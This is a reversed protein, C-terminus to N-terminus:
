YQLIKILLKFSIYNVTVSVFLIDNNECKEIEIYVM